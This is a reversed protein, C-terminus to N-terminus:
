GSTMVDIVLPTMSFTLGPAAPPGPRMPSTVRKLGAARVCVWYADFLPSPLLYGVIRMLLGIRAKNPAAARAATTRPACPHTASRGERLPTKLSFWYM